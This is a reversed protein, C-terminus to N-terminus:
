EVCYSHLATGSGAHRRVGGQFLAVTECTHKDDGQRWWCRRMCCLLSDCSYTPVFLIEQVSALTTNPPEVQLTLKSM